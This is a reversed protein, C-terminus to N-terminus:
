KSKELREIESLFLDRIEKGKVGRSEMKDVWDQWLPKLMDKARAAEEASFRHFEIGAKKMEDISKEDLNKAMEAQKKPREKNLQEIINQIDKPLSNWSDLNMVFPVAANIGLTPYITVHKAVEYLRNGTMTTLSNHSGDVTGRELGTYVEPASMTVPVAGWIKVAKAFDGWARIKVGKLDKIEKVATKTILFNYGPGNPCLYQVNNRKLEEKAGPHEYVKDAAMIAIYYNETPAGPLTAITFHPAKAPDYGCYYNTLQILGDGVAKMQDKAKVLSASFFYEVKVRGASRKELEEGWWTAARSMLSTKALMDAFKLVIPKPASEARVAMCPVSAFILVLGIVCSAMALKKGEM